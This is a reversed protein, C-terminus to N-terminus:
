SQRMNMVFFIIGTTSVMIVILACIGRVYRVIPTDVYEEADDDVTNSDDWRVSAQGPRFVLDDRLLERARRMADKEEPHDSFRAM